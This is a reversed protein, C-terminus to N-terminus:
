VAQLLGECRARKSYKLFDNTRLNVSFGREKRNEKIIKSNLITKQEKKSLSTVKILDKVNLYSYVHQRFDKPKASVTELQKEATIIEKNEM